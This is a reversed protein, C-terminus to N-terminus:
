RRAERVLHGLEPLILKELALRVAKTSGPLAFVVLRGVTGALARSLMAAPGIEQYSLMRFLEGFGPLQRDLAEALAEPTRDRRSIGTGGSLIVCDVEERLAEARVLAKIAEPEDPLIRRDTVQHGAEELLQVALDGSTDDELTRTDSITVVVCRVSKPAQKRHEEVGM